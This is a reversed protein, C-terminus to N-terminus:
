PITLQSEDIGCTVSAGGWGRKRGAKSAEAGRARTPAFGPLAPPGRRVGCSARGGPERAGPPGWSGSDQLFAESAVQARKRSAPFMQPSKERRANPFTSVESSPALPTGRDLCVGPRFPPIPGPPVAAGSAAPTGVPSGVLPRRKPSPRILCRLALDAREPRMTKSDTTSLRLKLFFTKLKLFFMLSWPSSLISCM